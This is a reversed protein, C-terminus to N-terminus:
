QPKDVGCPNLGPGGGATYGRSEGTQWPSIWFAYLDGEKLYFKAQIVKGALPSLDPNDKWTVLHKTSDVKKMVVCDKRTFGPIPQGQEDLVTGTVKKAAQAVSMSKGPLEARASPPMIGALMLASLGSVFLVRVSKGAYLKHMVTSCQITRKM